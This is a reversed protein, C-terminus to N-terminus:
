MLDPTSLVMFESGILIDVIHLGIVNLLSHIINENPNVGFDSDQRKIDIFKPIKQLIADFCKCFQLLISKMKETKHNNPDLIQSLVNAALNFDIKFFSKFYTKLSDRFEIKIEENPIKLNKKDDFTLYGSYLMCTFYLESIAPPCNEYTFSEQKSITLFEQFVNKKIKTPKIKLPIDSILEQIKNQIDSFKLFNILNEFHGTAVWYNAIPEKSKVLFGSICRVMSWPNYISIEGFSYGNYWHKISALNTKQIKYKELLINVDESTFGYYGKTFGPEICSCTILNNLESLFGAQEVHIIGTVFGKELNEDNTKLLNTFVQSILKIISNITSPDGGSYLADTIPADYEDVFVFVNSGWHKRLCM